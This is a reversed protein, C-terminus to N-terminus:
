ENIEGLHHNFISIIDLYKHYSILEYKTKYNIIIAYCKKKDLLIIKLYIFIFLLFWFLLFYLCIIINDLSVDIVLNAIYDLWIALLLIIVSIVFFTICPLILRLFTYRQVNKLFINKLHKVSINDSINKLKITRKTFEQYTSLKKLAEIKSVAQGNLIYKKNKTLRNHLNKFDNQKCQKFSFM